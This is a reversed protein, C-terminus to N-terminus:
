AEPAIRLCDAAFVAGPLSVLSCFFFVEALRVMFFDLGANAELCWGAARSLRALQPLKRKLWLLVEARHSQVSHVAM